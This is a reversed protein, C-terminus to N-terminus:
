QRTTLDFSVHTLEESVAWLRSAAEEDYAWQAAQHLAPPGNRRAPQFYEGGHADPSTAAYLTPAAGVESSQAILKLLLRVVRNGLPRPGLNTATLGPQAAISRLTHGAATLRRHLELMFLLNALKSRAYATVRSYGREFQLDDFDLKARSMEHIDSAVTVVRADPTALLTPLLLGTLAFHGLHNTGFIIEFGDKTKSYPQFALGANNILLDLADHGASFEEAFSRVSTLDSLDLKAWEVTAGPVQRRIDDVAKRGNEPSRGAIIVHAGHRALELSTVLGIGSNGGTVVAVRGSQDPIDDTTWQSM